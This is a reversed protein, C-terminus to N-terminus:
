HSITWHGGGISKIRDNLELMTLTQNFNAPDMKSRQLLEGGDTIGSSMLNLLLSEEQNSGFLEQQEIKEEKVGLAFFIDSADTVMAAGNKILNNTGQSTVSNINGPVAMVTKGQELAFNVTHITGSKQTAETILLGDSLGSVIRNRAIFHGLHVATLEPYESVLAGGSLLIEKALQYHSSPCIKDLGCPLVAITKGHVSLAANHAISDVGLALGSIIVFGKNAVARVLQETVARGYSTVKRCGVVALKPMELLSNIDGLVYLTKPPGPIHRLIEPYDNSKLTYTNIKTM